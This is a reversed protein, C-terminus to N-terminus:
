MKMQETSMIWLSIIVHYIIAINYKFIKKIRTELPM